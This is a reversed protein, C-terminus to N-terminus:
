ITSSGTSFRKQLSKLTRFTDIVRMFVFWRHPERTYVLLVQKGCYRSEGMDSIFFAKRVSVPDGRSVVTAIRESASPIPALM